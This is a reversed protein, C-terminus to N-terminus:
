EVRLRYFRSGPMKPVTVQNQLNTYNLVPVSTVEIWEATSPDSNEELICRRSPVIWSLVYTEGASTLKLEPAPTLHCTYALGLCDTRGNMSAAVLTNGDASGALAVWNTLPADMPTWSLGSDTSRYILGGNAAAALNKGDASSAVLCSWNTFGASTWTAGSDSSTFLGGSSLSSAIWGPETPRAPSPGM